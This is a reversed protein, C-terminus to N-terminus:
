GMAKADSDMGDDLSRPKLDYIAPCVGDCPFNAMSEAENDEPDANLMKELREKDGNYSIELMDHALAVAGQCYDWGDDSWQWHDDLMMEAAWTLQAKTLELIMEDTVKIEPRVM